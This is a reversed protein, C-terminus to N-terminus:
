RARRKGFMGEAGFNPRVRNQLIQKTKGAIRGRPTRLATQAVVRAPSRAATKTPSEEKWVHRRRRLQSACPKSTNTKTKGAIRGRPTRTATQAIVRAPSRVVTTTPSEEKWVRKSPSRNRLIM